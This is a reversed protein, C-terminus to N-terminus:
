WQIGLSFYYSADSGSWSSGPLHKGPQEADHQIVQSAGDGPPHRHRKNSRTLGYSGGSRGSACEDFWLIRVIEERAQLVQICDTM